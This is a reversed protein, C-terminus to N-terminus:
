ARGLVSLIIWGIAQPLFFWWITGGVGSFICPIVFNHVDNFPPKLWRIESPFLALEHDCRDILLWLLSFPFDVVLFILWYMPWDPEKGTSIAWMVFIVLAAHM